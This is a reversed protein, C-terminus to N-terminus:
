AKRALVIPQYYGSDQPMSWRMAIFGAKQLVTELNARRLARYETVFHTTVWREVTQRVLFQHVTYRPPENPAWDWTQFAIRRGEPGDMVRPMEAQPREELLADYDRISAVFLGRPHLKALINQAALYLDEDSLLHPLANDCAIVVDYEGPVEDDLTRMDAVGGTLTVGFSPAEKLARTVAQPSLDTAHVQHGRVALGIAQTGIGCACDLIASPANRPEPRILHDLVVGQRM